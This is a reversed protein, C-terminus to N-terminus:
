FSIIFYLRGLFKKNWRDEIDVYGSLFHLDSSFLGQINKGSGTDAERM